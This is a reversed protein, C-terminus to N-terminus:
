SRQRGNQVYIRCLLGPELQFSIREPKEKFYKVAEDLIKSLRREEMMLNDGLTRSTHIPFRGNTPPRSFAVSDYYIHSVGIIAM